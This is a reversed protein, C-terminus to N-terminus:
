RMNGRRPPLYSENSQRLNAFRAPKAPMRGRQNSATTLESMVTAADDNLSPLLRRSPHPLAESGVSGNASQTLMKLQESNKAMPPLLVLRAPVHPLHRERHEWLEDGNMKAGVRHQRFYEEILDGMWHKVSKSERVHTRVRRSTVVDMSADLIATDEAVWILGNWKAGLSVLLRECELPRCVSVVGFNGDRLAQPSILPVLNTKCLYFVKADVGPFHEALMDRVHELLALYDMARRRTIEWPDVSIWKSSQVMLQAVALRHPSPIIESRNIRYRERVTAGHAPSIISGLVTFGGRGELYQKALFYSRMHMRTLPNCSGQGVIVAFKKSLLKTPDDALADVFEQM